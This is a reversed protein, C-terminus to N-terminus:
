PLSGRHNRRNSLEFCTAIEAYPLAGPNLQPETKPQHNAPRSDEACDDCLCQGFRVGAEKEGPTLLADCRDCFDRFDFTATM